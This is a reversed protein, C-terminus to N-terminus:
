PRGEWTLERRAFRAPSLEGSTLEVEVVYVKADEEGEVVTVVGIDGPALRGELGTPVSRIKVRDGPRPPYGCGPCKFPFPAGPRHEPYLRHWAAASDPRIHMM